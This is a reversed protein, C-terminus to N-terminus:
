NAGARRHAGLMVHQQVTWPATGHQEILAVSAFTLALAHPVATLADDTNGAARPNRPHALTIHAGLERADADQLLWQRLAHFGVAGDACRLLVGHGEVRQAAGFSMALPGHPWSAVRHAVTEATVSAVEEDRCLTVHAPILAAQVPDLAVRLQQLRSRWPEDVFLTLQRRRM